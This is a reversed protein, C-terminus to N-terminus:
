RRRRAARRRRARRRVVAVLQERGGPPGGVVPRDVTSPADSSGQSRTSQGTRPATTAGSDPRVAPHDAASTATASPGGAGPSTCAVRSVARQAPLWSASASSSEDRSRSARASIRANRACILGCKM